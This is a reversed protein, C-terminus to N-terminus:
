EDHARKVFNCYRVYQAGDTGSCTGEMVFTGKKELLGRHSMILYKKGYVKSGTITKEAYIEAETDADRRGEDIYFTKGTALGAERRMAIHMRSRETMQSYFFMIILVATIVTLIIVPLVIAAEMIYSGRKGKVDIIRLKKRYINMGWGMM